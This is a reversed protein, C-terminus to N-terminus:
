SSSNKGWVVNVVLPAYIPEAQLDRLDAYITGQSVGCIGALEAVSRPKAYLLDRIWVLRVARKVAPKTSKAVYPPEQETM